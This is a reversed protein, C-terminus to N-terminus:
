DLTAQMEAGSDQVEVELSKLEGQLWRIRGQQALLLAMFFPDTAFTKGSREV